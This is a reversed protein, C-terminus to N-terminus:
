FRAPESKHQGSLTFPLACFSFMMFDWQDGRKRWHTKGFALQIRQMIGFFLSDDWQFFNLFGFTMCHHFIM